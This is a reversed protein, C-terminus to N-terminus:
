RVQEEIEQAEHNTGEDQDPSPKALYPSAALKDTEPFEKKIGHQFGNRENRKLTRDCADDFHEENVVADVNRADCRGHEACKEQPKDTSEVESDRRVVPPDKWNTAIACSDVIKQGVM